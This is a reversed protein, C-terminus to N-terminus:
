VKYEDNAVASLSLFLMRPASVSASKDPRRCVGLEVRIQTHTYHTNKQGYFERAYKAIRADISCVCMVTEDREPDQEYLFFFFFLRPRIFDAPARAGRIWDVSEKVGGGGKCM